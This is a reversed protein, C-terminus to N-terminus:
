DMAANNSELSSYLGKSGYKLIAASNLSVAAMDDMLYVDHSGKLYPFPNSSHVQQMSDKASQAANCAQGMLQSSKEQSQAKAQATEQEAASLQDM